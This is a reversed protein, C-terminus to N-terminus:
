PFEFAVIGTEVDGTTTVITWQARDNDSATRVSDRSDAVLGNLEHVEVPSLMRWANGELWAPVTADPAAYVVLFREGTSEFSLLSENGPFVYEDRATVANTTVGTEAAPTDSLLMRYNGLLDAAILYLRGGSAASVRFRCGHTVASRNTSTEFDGRVTEIRLRLVDVPDPRSAAPGVVIEPMPASDPALGDGKAESSPLLAFCVISALVVAAACLVLAMRKTRWARPPDSAPVSVPEPRVAMGRDGGLIATTTADHLARQMSAASEPRSDRRLAMAAHIVASVAEPVAPNVSHVPPLPDPQNNVLAVGRVCADIPLKYTLLTYLTAALSYLDSRADSGQGNLQELSAYHPTGGLLSVTTATSQSMRSRKALGFDLLVIDGELTLKLNHPKIDRHIVPPYSSHLYALADLIEDAWGLVQHVPFPRGNRQLVEALDEGSVYEMVLCEAAGYEFYDIVKPLATHKLKNLIQAERRFARRLDQRERDFIAEKLAVHNNLREDVALYVAGMGGQGLKREIRYRNVLVANHEIM